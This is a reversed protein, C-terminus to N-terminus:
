PASNRGPNKGCPEQSTETTQCCTAQLTETQCCKDSTRSGQDESNTTEMEHAEKIFKFSLDCLQDASSNRRLANSLPIIIIGAHRGFRCCTRWWCLCFKKKKKCLVLFIQKYYTPSQPKHLYQCICVSMVTVTIITPHHLCKVACKGLFYIGLHPM